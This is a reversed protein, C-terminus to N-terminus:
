ATPPPMPPAPSVPPAPPVAAPFVDFQPGFQALFYLPYARKFILVPLLVVTGIFPLAMLCGAICCTLLIVMVVLIGIAMSLVIQFLIYLAFQGPYAALLGGFERWAALCRGGRLYMIPVVFDVMFKHIIAFIVGCFILGLVMIAAMMVGGLDMRNFGGHLEIGVVAMVVIVLQTLMLAMAILGLVLRFWFLSIASVGYKEWPERVEARDLAVCHLFMFKGRSNLWLLLIWLALLVMGMTVAVPVIWYLNDTVYDRAQHYFHRFQEMPDGGSNFHNGGGGNYGGQFGGSEGLGALWACFGITIWKGLDFPKFLMTKVREYAPTVPEAVSIERPHSSPPEISM